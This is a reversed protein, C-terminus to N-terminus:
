LIQLRPEVALERAISRFAVSVAFTTPGAIGKGVSEEIFFGMTDNTAGFADGAWGPAKEWGFNRDNQNEDAM